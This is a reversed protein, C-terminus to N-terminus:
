ALAMRLRYLFASMAQRSVHTGPRYTGDDFGTSIGTDKMWRIEKCFPHSAPVDVFPASSCPTLTVGALRALFASMSQRTVPIAPRYTGDEFGTSIGTSQMWQIEACFPNTPPVDTFPGFEGCAVLTADAFRALFAAMAQRSVATSPKYTGDGFGTSVGTQSMWEIEACFPHSTTIDSFPASDCPPGLVYVAGSDPRLENSGDGDVGVADSDEFPAGVAIATGSVSVAAGFFDTEDTNTAKLYGRPSWVGSDRAYAYAAGPAVASADTDYSNVGRADGSEWSAGVIAADGEVAVASGFLDDDGSNSAKLYAQYSWL